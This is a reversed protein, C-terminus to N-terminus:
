TVSSGQAIHAPAIECRADAGARNRRARGWPRRRRDRGASRGGASRGGRAPPRRRRGRSRPPPSAARTKRRAASTARYGRDMPRGFPRGDESPSDVAASAILSRAPQWSTPRRSVMPRLRDHGSQPLLGHGTRREAGVVDAAKKARLPEPFRALTEGRAAERRGVQVRDLVLADAFDHVGLLVHAQLPDGVALEAAGEKVDIEELPEFADLGMVAFEDGLEALVVAGLDPELRRRHMDAALDLPGPRDLARIEVKELRRGRSRRFDADRRRRHQM